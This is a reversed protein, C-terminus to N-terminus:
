TSTAAVDSRHSRPRSRTVQRSFAVVSSRRHPRDFTTDRSLDHNHCAVLKSGQAARGRSRGTTSRKAKGYVKRGVLPARAPLTACSPDEPSLYSFMDHTQEDPGRV